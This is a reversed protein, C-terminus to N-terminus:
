ASPRALARPPSRRRRPRVAPEIPVATHKPVEALLADFREVGVGGWRTAGRCWLTSGDPGQFLLQRHRRDLVVGRLEEWSLASVVRGDGRIRRVADSDLRIQGLSGAEERKAAYLMIAPLVGVLPLLAAFRWPPPLAVAAVGAALACCSIAAALGRLHLRYRFGM